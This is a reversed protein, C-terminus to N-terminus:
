KEGLLSQNDPEGRNGKQELTWLGFEVFEGRSEARLSEENMVLESYRSRHCFTCSKVVWLFPIM